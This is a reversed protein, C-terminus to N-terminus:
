KNLLKKYMSYAVQTGNRKLADLAANISVYFSFKAPKAHTSNIYDLANKESLFYRDVNTNSESGSGSGDFAAHTAMSHVDFHISKYGANYMGYFWAAGTDSGGWNGGFSGVPGNPITLQRYLPVNILACYENLRCEPLPHVLGRQLIAIANEKRPIDYAQHLELAESFSPKYYEYQTSSCRNAYFAPCNWCQGIQGVGAVSEKGELERLLRGILDGKLLMDNHMLCLFKKDTSEFAYQYIISHRFVTDTKAREWDVTGLGLFYAPRHVVLKVPSDKFYDIIKYIGGWDNHPQSKEYNLYIKDVHELSYDIISQITTITQYPKGYVPIAVDVLKQSTTQMM